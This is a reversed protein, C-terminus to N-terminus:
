TNNHIIRMKNIMENFLLIIRFIAYKLNKPIEIKKFKVWGFQLPKPCLRHQIGLIKFRWLILTPFFHQEFRSTVHTMINWLTFHGFSMFIGVFSPRSHSLVSYIIQQYHMCIISYSVRSAFWGWAVSKKYMKGCESFLEVLSVCNIMTSIQYM